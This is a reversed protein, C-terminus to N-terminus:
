GGVGIRTFHVLREKSGQWGVVDREGTNEEEREQRDRHVWLFHPHLPKGLGGEQDQLREQPRGADNPSHGYLTSRERGKSSVLRASMGAGGGVEVPSSIRGFADIDMPSNLLLFCSFLSPNLIDLIREYFLMTYPAINILLSM